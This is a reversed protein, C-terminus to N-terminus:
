EQFAEHLTVGSISNTKMYTPIVLVALIKAGKAQVVVGVFFPPALTSGCLGALHAGASTLTM